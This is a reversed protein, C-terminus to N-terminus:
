KEHTLNSLTNMNEKKIIALTITALDVGLKSMVTENLIMGPAIQYMWDDMSVVITDGKYPIELTYKLRIAQGKSQILANGQVDSATGIYRNNGDPQMTWVRTQREGDNFWFVEDLTGVGNEWTGILSAKFHRIVKGSRDRVMGYAVLEGTFFQQLDVSPETNSYDDISVRTCSSITITITILVFLQAIQSLRKKFLTLLTNM